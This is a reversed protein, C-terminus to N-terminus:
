VYRRGSFIFASDVGICANQAPDLRLMHIEQMLGALVRRSGHLNLANTTSDDFTTPGKLSRRIRDLVLDIQRNVFREYQASVQNGASNSGDASKELERHKQSCLDWVAREEEIM